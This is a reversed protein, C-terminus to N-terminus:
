NKNNNVVQEQKNIKLEKEQQKKLKKDLSIEMRQKESESIVTTSDEILHETKGVITSIATGSTVNVATRGMDFIGDLAGIISYVGQFYAGFGLGALVGATVVGATGPIGSIGLSAVLTIFLALIFFVVLGMSTLNNDHQAGTWLFSTIVGSQVGACGMLGLTTSLPAVTSVVSDDVKIDDKLTNILMPLTANSSQTAFGQILVKFSHKWWNIVNIKFALLMLTIWVLSITLGIYGVGIAKGISGLAGIPKSIISSTIMSFVALPMIKMFTMLVSIVLKWAVDAGKRIKEMEEPMKKSLIKVSSGFLFGLVMLPVVANALWPQVFNAPFYNWIITPLAQTEFKKNATEGIPQLHVGKGVNLLIGIWFTVIFAFATNLLLLSTAKISIRAINKKGPKSVVRFIALFVVPATLLLIGNIFIKKFLSVWIDLQVAWSVNSLGEKPFNNIAQILIGFTLGLALAILIRYIFKIKYKKFGFWLLASILSFVLISVLAQWSSIALFKDLLVNPKKDALIM